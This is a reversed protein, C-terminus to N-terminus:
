QTLLYLNIDEKNGNALQSIELIHCSLQEFKIDMRIFVNKNEVFYYYTTISNNIYEEIVEVTENDNNNSNRDENGIRTAKAHLSLSKDISQIM